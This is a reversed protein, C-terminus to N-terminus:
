RIVTSALRLEISPGDPGKAGAGAAIKVTQKNIGITAENGTMNGFVNGQAPAVTIFVSLADAGKKLSMTRITPTDVRAATPSAYPQWNDNVLASVIQEYARMVPETTTFITSSPSAFVVKAGTLRPLRSTDTAAETSTSAAILAAACILVRRPLRTIGSTMVGSTMKYSM